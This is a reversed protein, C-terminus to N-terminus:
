LKNSIFFQEQKLKRYLFIIILGMLFDSIGSLIILLQQSIMIFYMILFVTAIFKVIISFIILCEFRKKDYGAMAYGVAMVIHFVGGQTSFFRDFTTKYGLFEFVSAPLVILGIGVFFSHLAVLWLFVTLLKDTKHHM